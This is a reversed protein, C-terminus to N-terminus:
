RTPPAAPQGVSPVPVPVPEPEAPIDDPDGDFIEARRRQLHADRIFSYRDLAAEELVTGVRLLNSRVDVARLIYLEYRDDTPVVYHVVDGRRDISLALTDRLTSPGLLPLMIFPGAPVGWHGLTQGFDERHREINFDSAIDLIGGLGFFTNVNVRMFNEAANQFKFQLASNVFSWADSLNGFFNAVGTRAMPPIAAKYATAIPKLVISDVGENFEMVGRNMPELPDRPNKNFGACGALLALVGALLPGRMRRPWDTSKSFLTTQIM